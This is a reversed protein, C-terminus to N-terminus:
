GLHMGRDRMMWNLDDMTRKFAVKSFGWTNVGCFDNLIRPKEWPQDFILPYCPPTIEGQGMDRWLSRCGLAWWPFQLLWTKGESFLAKIAPRILLHHHAKNPRTNRRPFRPMQPPPTRVRLNGMSILTKRLCQSRVPSGGPTIWFTNCFM